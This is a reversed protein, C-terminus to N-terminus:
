GTAPGPLGGGDVRAAAAESPTVAEAATGFEGTARAKVEVFVTTEGDRAVIDIEGHRTRYRRALIAYGRRELEDVALDEGTKGLAQRQMTMNGGQFSCCARWAAPNLDPRLRIGRFVRGALAPRWRLGGRAGRRLDRLVTDAQGEVARAAARLPHANRGAGLILVGRRFMAQVLANREEVAREKTKRDRVLEVGIMLGKGRVDGIIPHKEQLERLGDM